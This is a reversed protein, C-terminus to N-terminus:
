RFLLASGCELIKEESEKKREEVPFIIANRLSFPKQVTERLSM